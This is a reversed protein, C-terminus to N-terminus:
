APVTEILARILGAIHMVGPDRDRRVHWALHLPFGDVPIPSEHVSLGHPEAPMARRPLLAILDSGVLMPPVMAFSPVVAGVHRALGRGELVEDLAGRTAGHGSVIIHPYALWRDLDFASAAPHERRMVVCYSEQSLTERHFSQDAKPFVSLALDATGRAMAELAADAGYWPQLVLTIGPATRAIGALLGPAISVAPHDAMVVRVNQRLAALDPAPPDILREVEGLIAKIPARLSEARPTRRMMGRGRELLPDGFLHRCRDLAASAAPQSLGLREAARSVHAEDLLADLITLLNLDIARLNM